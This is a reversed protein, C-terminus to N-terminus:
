TFDSADTNIRKWINDALEKINKRFTIALGIVIVLIIIISIINTDGDENKIFNRMAKKAQFIKTALMADFRYFLMKEEEKRGKYKHSM